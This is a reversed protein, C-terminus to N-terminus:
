ATEETHAPRGTAVRLIESATHALVMAMGLPLFMLSIIIPTGTDLLREGSDAADMMYHWGTWLYVTAFCIMALAVALRALRRVVESKVLAIIDVAIHTGTYSCMAAGVFTLPSMAIIGYEGPNLVPLNFNRVIVSGTVALLMILLSSVCIAKELGYLRREILFWRDLASTAATM